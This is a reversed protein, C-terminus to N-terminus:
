EGFSVNFYLAFVNLGAFHEKEATPVKVRGNSEADKEGAVDGSEVGYHVHHPLREEALSRENVIAARAVSRRSQRSAGRVHM